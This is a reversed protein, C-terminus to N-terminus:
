FPPSNRFGLAALLINNAANVTRNAEEVNNALGPNVEVMDVAKLRGTRHVMDCLTLGERMTLGGRVATGTAPADVPDLADIDFSLHINRNGLPDVSALAEEVVQVIGLRDVDAMYFATIGLEVLVERERQEVDRLGVYVLQAPSLRPTLWSLEPHPFEEQLEKMNFSLPMGHMNGSNSSTLTNIDAHADVWVVVCDPDCALHGAVTGLAISHDGGLTVALQGQSVMQKVMNHATGSFRAVERQRTAM